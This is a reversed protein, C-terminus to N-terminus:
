PGRGYWSTGDSAHERKWIPVDRKLREIAERCATFAEARHPASAAIIVAAEGIELRGLRHHIAVRAGEVAAEVDAAIQQMVALAMPEYAEYDLHEVEKGMSDRRVNGIFSAIGGARAHAVADVVRALSLPARGLACRPAADDHGGSVPPIVALEAPADIPHDAAVFEQDVAVRCRALPGAVEPFAAALAELLGRATTGPAIELDVHDRRLRDRVGAFLLVTVHM